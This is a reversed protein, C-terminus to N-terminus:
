RIRRANLARDAAGCRRCSGATRHPPRTYTHGHLQKGLHPARPARRESRRELAIARRGDTSPGRASRLDDDRDGEGGHADRCQLRRCGRGPEAHEVQERHQRDRDPASLEGRKRRGQEAHDREVVEEDRRAVPQRDGVRLVDDLEHHEQDGRDDDAPQRGGTALARGLALAAGTEGRCALALRRQEGLGGRRDRRSVVDLRLELADSPADFRRRSRAARPHHELRHWGWAGVLDGHGQARAHACAPQIDAGVRLPRRGVELADRSRETAQDVDGQFPLPDGLLGGLGLGGPARLDGLCRDQVRDRVVQARGEGRNGGRPRCEGCDAQGVVLPALEGVHDLGLARAEGPEDVVEEIERLDLRARDLWPRIPTVQM